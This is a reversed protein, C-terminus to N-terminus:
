QLKGLGETVLAVLAVPAFLPPVLAILHKTKTEGEEEERQRWRPYRCSRPNAEFM